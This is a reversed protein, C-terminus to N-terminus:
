TIGYLTFTGSITGSSFLIRFANVSVYHIVGGAGAWGFEGANRVYATTYKLNTYYTASAPNGIEVELFGSNTAGSSYSGGLAVYPNTKSSFNTGTPSTESIYGAYYYDGAGGKWSSGGDTSAQLLLEVNNTGPHIDTGVIKYARFRADLFSTFNVASAASVTQSQLLVPTIQPLSTSDSSVIGYYVQTIGLDISGSDPQITVTTAAGYVSSTITGYVVSGGSNITKVRRNIQFTTTQNGPVSFSTSSVYTPAQSYLLWQDVTTSSIQQGRLNDISWIPSTPPDTDTPPAFVVKYTEGDTFWLETSPEGLSNLVLPNANATSGTSDTYTNQKTNSGAAYFFLKYGLAPQGDSAVYQPKPGFPSVSVSM